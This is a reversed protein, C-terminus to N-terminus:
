RIKKKRKSIKRPAGLDRKKKGNLCFDPRDARQKSEPLKRPPLDAVQLREGGPPARKDTGEPQCPRRFVLQALKRGREPKGKLQIAGTPVRKFL